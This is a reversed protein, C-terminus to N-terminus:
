KNFLENWVQMAERIWNEAQNGNGKIWDKPTTFGQKKGRLVENTLVGEFADRLIMKDKKYEYPITTVFNVLESCLFPTRMELTHAMSIRDVVLLVSELFHNADFCYRAEPTDEPFVEKFLERCYEDEIGTRNVVKWYDPESYRWSYGFFLEDGGGGDFVVKVFKSCLEFLTFHAYSAGVLPVELAYITEQFNRVRDLVVEYHNKGYLEALPREDKIGKYGATFTYCDPLFANVINSDLGGSLSCGFLVEKPIQREISNTVLRRVERKAEEYDMKEPKFSWEWFKTKKNTNLHWYIGKDMKYIGNWLTENTFINNFCLLQKEANENKSFRYEPHSVIPKIESSLIIYDKNEFYYLPKQGWRDRFIYVNEGQIAVIVFMGNLVKVFDCGYKDFGQALVDCETGTFGLEKYNYIEGTLYVVWGNVKGPQPKDRDTIALRRFGVKCTPYYNHIIQDKGRHQIESLMVGMYYKEEVNTKRYEIVLGCM